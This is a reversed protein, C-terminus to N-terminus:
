LIKLWIGTQSKYDNLMQARSRAAGQGIQKDFRRGHGHQLNLIAHSNLWVM